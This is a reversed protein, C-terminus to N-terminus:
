FKVRVVGIVTKGLTDITKVSEFLQAILSPSSYHYSERKLSEFMKCVVQQEHLININIHTSHSRINLM